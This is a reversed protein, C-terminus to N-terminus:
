PLRCDKIEEAVEKEVTGRANFWDPEEGNPCKMVKGTSKCVGMLGDPCMCGTARSLKWEMLANPSLDTGDHCALEFLNPCAPSGGEECGM